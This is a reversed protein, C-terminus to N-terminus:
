RGGVQVRWSEWSPQDVLEVRPDGSYVLVEQDGRQKSDPEGFKENFSDLVAQKPNTGSPGLEYQMKFRFNDVQDNDDLSYLVQLLFTDFELGPFWLSKMNKNLHRGYADELEVVTAGLLPQESEFGFRPNGAGGMFQASPFYRKLQLTTSRRRTLRARVGEDPNFWYLADFREGNVKIGSDDPAKVPEGWAEKLAPIPDFERPFGVVLENVTDPWQEYRGRVSHASYRGPQGPVKSGSMERFREDVDDLPTKMLEVGEFPGFPRVTDPLAKRFAELLKGPDPEGTDAKSVPSSSTGAGSTDASSSEARTAQKMDQGDTGGGCAPLALAVLLGPLFVAWGPVAQRRASRSLRQTGM